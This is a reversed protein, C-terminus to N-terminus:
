SFVRLVSDVAILSFEATNKAIIKSSLSTNVCNILSERDNLNVPKTISKLIELGKDLAHQFAESITTPHIGKDLLDESAKLLAGCIM